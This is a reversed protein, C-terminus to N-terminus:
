NSESSNSVRRPLLLPTQPKQFRYANRRAVKTTSDITITQNSWCIYVVYGISILGSTFIVASGFSCSTSWLLSIGNLGISFLANMSLQAASIRSRNGKEVNEQITQTTVMDFTWVGWRQMVAGIFIFLISLYSRPPKVGPPCRVWFSEEIENYLIIEYISNNIKTNFHLLDLKHISKLCAVFM